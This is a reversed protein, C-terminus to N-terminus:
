CCGSRGSKGTVASSAETSQSVGKVVDATEGDGAHKAVDAQAVIGCCGGSDDVVPVRRVQQEELIRCCDRVDTEPTVTTCGDTMCDGATLELPNKGEAVTRCVIDRDTVMGVPRRSREDEVVPIAGCDCSMMLQAVDHLNTDPTCCAVDSTMIERVKM